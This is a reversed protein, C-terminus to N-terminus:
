LWESVMLINQVSKSFDCDDAVIHAGNEYDVFNNHLPSVFFKSEVPILHIPSGAGAMKAAFLEEIDESDHNFWGASLLAAIFDTNRSIVQHLGAMANIANEYTSENYNNLRDHKLKNYALWWTPPAKTWNIFPNLFLISQDIFLSIAVELDLNHEVLKSYDKLNYKKGEEGGIEKFISEILGCSEIILPIFKPSVVGKNVSIFPIFSLCEELQSELEEFNSIIFRIKTNEDLM